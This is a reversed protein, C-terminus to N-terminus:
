NASTTFCTPKGARGLLKSSRSRALNAGRLCARRMKVSFGVQLSMGYGEKPYGFKCVMGKKPARYGHLHTSARLVGDELSRIEWAM